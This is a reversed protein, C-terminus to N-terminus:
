ASPGFEALFDAPSMIRPRELLNRLALIHRDGSILIDANSLLAAAILYDDKKDNTISPIEGILISLRVAAEGIQSITKDLLESDVQRVLYPKTSTVERLEAVLDDPLVVEVQQEFIMAFLVFIPDSSREKKLLYSVILNTALLVRPRNEPINSV